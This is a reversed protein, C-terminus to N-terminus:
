GVYNECGPVMYPYTCSNISQSFVTGPACKLSYATFGGQGNNACQYFSGCDIPNSVYGQSQCISPSPTVVKTTSQTTSPTFPNGNITTTTITSTSPIAPPISNGAIPTTAAPNNMSLVIAKTLIFPTGYCSGLFDDTEISWVLAGGLDM